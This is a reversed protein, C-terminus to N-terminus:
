EEPRAERGYQWLRMQLCRCADSGCQLGFVFAHTLFFCAAAIDGADESRNAALTYLEVLAEGDDRAHARRLLDDLKDPETTM